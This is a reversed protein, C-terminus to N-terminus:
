KLLGQYFVFGEFNEGYRKGVGSNISLNNWDELGFTLIIYM